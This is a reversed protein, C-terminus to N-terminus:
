RFVTQWVKSTVPNNMLKKYSSITKGTVPHAMTLAFHKIHLPAHKVVPPLLFTPTFALNMKKHKNCMLANIAHPTVIHQCAGSPIPTHTALAIPTSIVGPMNNRTTMSMSIVKMSLPPYTSYYPVKLGNLYRYEFGNLNGIEKGPKGIKKRLIALQSGYCFRWRSCYM